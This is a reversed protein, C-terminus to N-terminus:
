KELWKNFRVFFRINEKLERSDGNIQLPTGYWFGIQKNNFHYLLMKGGIIFDVLNECKKIKIRM